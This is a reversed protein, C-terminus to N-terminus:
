IINQLTVKKGAIVVEDGKTKNLFTQAIPAAQSVVAIKSGEFDILGISTAIFVLQQNSTLILAGKQVKTCITAPNIKILNSLDTKAAQLQKAHMDRAIHSMARGTEYKDGASSKDESNASEQADIMAAAFTNIRKEVAAKCNEFLQTKFEITIEM